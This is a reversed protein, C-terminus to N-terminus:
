KLHCWTIKKWKKMRWTKSCKILLKLSTRGSIPEDYKYNLIATIEQATRKYDIKGKKMLSQKNNINLNKTHLFGLYIKFNIKTWGLPRPNIMSEAPDSTGPNSPNKLSYFDQTHNGESPFYLRPDRTTSKRCRFSGWASILTESCFKDAKEREIDSAM